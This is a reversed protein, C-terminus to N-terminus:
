GNEKELYRKQGPECHDMIKVFCDGCVLAQDEKDLGPFLKDREREREEQSTFTLLEQNCHECIFKSVKM